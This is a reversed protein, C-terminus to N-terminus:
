PQAERLHFADLAMSLEVVDKPVSLSRKTLREIRRIRNLVTNRHCFLSTAARQVSGGASLWATLTDLLLDRSVRDLAIIPALIRTCLERALDPRAALLAIPLREELCAVDGGVTVTRAALEALRRARGLETLSDVALSVGTRRGPRTPLAKALVSAPTSGLAAVGIAYGAHVRWIVRIGSVRAPLEGQELAPAGWDAPRQVVVAYRAREALGWAQAASVVCDRDADGNLLADLLRGGERGGSMEDEAARYSTAATVCHLDVAKWVDDALRIIQDRPVDEGAAWQMFSGVLVQGGIHYARYMAELPVGRQARRRGAERPWAVTAEREEPIHQCSVLVEHVSKAVEGTPVSIRYAPESAHLSTVVLDALTDIRDSLSQVGRNRAAVDEPGIPTGFKPAALDVVSNTLM